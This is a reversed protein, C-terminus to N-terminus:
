QAASLVGAPNLDFGTMQKVVEAIHQSFRQDMRGRFTFWYCLFNELAEDNRGERLAKEGENYYRQIYKTMWSQIKEDLAQIGNRESERLTQETSKLRAPRNILNNVDRDRVGSIETAKEGRTTDVSESGILQKELMDRIEVNMSIHARTALNYEQYTYDSIKDRTIERNVTSLQRETITLDELTNGEHTAKGPKPKERLLAAKVKRYEEMVKSYEPNSVIEQGSICKSPKDAPKDNGSSDTEYNAIGVTFL